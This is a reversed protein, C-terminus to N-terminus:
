PGAEGGIGPNLTWTVALAGAIRNSQRDFEVFTWVKEGARMAVADPRTRVQRNLADILTRDNM